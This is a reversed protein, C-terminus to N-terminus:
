SVYAGFSLSWWLLPARFLVRQKAQDKILFFFAHFDIFVHNDLTFRHVSLLNQSASPAHLINNLDFSGHPTRLTSHGIHSIHMGVCEAIRARDQGNYKNAILLKKL